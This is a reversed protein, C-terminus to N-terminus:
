RKLHEIDSEKLTKVLVNLAAKKLLSTNRSFMHMQMIVSKDLLQDSELCSNKNASSSINKGDISTIMEGSKLEFLM